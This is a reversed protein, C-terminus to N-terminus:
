LVRKIASVLKDIDIPKAIHDNMGCSLSKNVDEVFANASLAIIPIDKDIERIEKCAEYGNKIPMQIDMLIVDFGNKNEKFINVCEEGNKARTNVTHKDKLLCDVIEYNLDNDEAILIRIGDINKDNLANDEIAVELAYPLALEVKFTTGKDPKSNCAIDGHMCDVIEKVITLGLGSGSVNNTRSNLARTFSTYMTKQFEESMGIGDDVVTFLLECNSVKDIAELSFNVNGGESTYKIANSILNVYIQKLRTEDGIVYKDDLGILSTSLNIDKNSAYPEMLDCLEKGLKNLSVTSNNLFLKGSEIKSIDLIDNILTLLQKSANYSKDLYGRALSPDEIYKYALDNMGIVVNMPTRIDHSMTSLFETKAYNAKNAEEYAEKMRKNMTLLYLSDITLLLLFLCVTIFTLNILNENTKLQKLSIMGLMYIDSNNAFSTYYYLCDQNDSDKYYLPASKNIKLNNIFINREKLDDAFNNQSIYSVFTEGKMGESKVIYEGNSSIIALKGDTYQTPLNWIEMIEDVPIIRLLLYDKNGDDTIINVRHGVSICYQNNEKLLYKGLVYVIDTNNLFMNELINKFYTSSDSYFNCYNLYTDIENDGLEYSSSYAKYADMDVIHAYRNRNTNITKLFTLADDLNMDNSDIYNAWNNVYGQENKLFNQTLKKQSEISVMFSYKNDEDQNDSVYNTYYAIALVITTIIVLNIIFLIIKNDKFKYAQKM